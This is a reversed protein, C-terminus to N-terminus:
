SGRTRVRSALARRLHTLMVLKVPRRRARRERAVPRLETPKRHVPQRVRRRPPNHNRNPRRVKPPQRLPSPHRVPPRLETPRPRAPPRSRRTPKSRRHERRQEPTLQLPVPRHPHPQEPRRVLTPRMRPSPSPSISSSRHTQLLRRRTTSSTKAPQIRLTATGTTAANMAPPARSPEPTVPVPQTTLATMPRHLTPAVGTTPARPPRPPQQRTTVLHTSARRAPALRVPTPPRLTHLTPQLRSRSRAQKTSLRAEM